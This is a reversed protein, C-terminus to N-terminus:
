HLLFMVQPRTPDLGNNGTPIRQAAQSTRANSGSFREIDRPNKCVEDTSQRDRSNGMNTQDMISVTATHVM